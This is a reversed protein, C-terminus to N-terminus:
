WSEEKVNHSLTAHTVSFIPASFVKIAVPNLGRGSIHWALAKDM